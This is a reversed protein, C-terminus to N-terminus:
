LDRAAEGSVEDGLFEDIATVIMAAIEPPTESTAYVRRPDNRQIRRYLEITMLVYRPQGDYLIAVPAYDAEANVTTPDDRWEAETFERMPAEDYSIPM